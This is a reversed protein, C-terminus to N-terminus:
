KATGRKGGHTRWLRLRGGGDVPSAPMDEKSQARLWTKHTALDEPAM